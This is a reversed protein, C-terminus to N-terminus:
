NKPSSYLLKGRGGKSPAPAVWSICEDYAKTLEGWGRKILIKHNILFGLHHTSLIRKTLVQANSSKSAIKTANTVRPPFGGLRSPTSRSSGLNHHATPFNTFIRKV